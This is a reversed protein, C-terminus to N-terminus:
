YIVRFLSWRHNQISYKLELLREFEGMIAKCVYIMAERGVYSVQKSCVVESITVTQMSHDETEFRFRIPVLNGDTSCLAIMDVPCNKKEM